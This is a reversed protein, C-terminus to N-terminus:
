FLAFADTRDVLLPMLDPATPSPPPGRTAHAIRV